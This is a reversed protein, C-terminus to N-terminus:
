VKQRASKADPLCSKIFTVVHVDVRSTLIAKNAKLCTYGMAKVMTERLALFLTTENGLGLNYYTKPGQSRKQKPGMGHHEIIKEIVNDLHSVNAALAKACCESEEAQLHNTYLILNALHSGVMDKKGINNIASGYLLLAGSKEDPTAAALQAPLADVLVANWEDDEIQKMTRELLLCVSEIFSDKEGEELLKQVSPIEELWLTEAQPVLVTCFNLMLNLCYKGQQRKEPVLLKVFFLALLEQPSPLGKQEFDVFYDPDDSEKLRQALQSLCKVLIPTANPYKVFFSFLNPWM